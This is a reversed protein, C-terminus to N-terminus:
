KKIQSALDRFGPKLCNDYFSSFTSLKFKDSTQVLYIDIFCECLIVCGCVCMCVCVYVSVCVCMYVYVYEFFALIYPSYM